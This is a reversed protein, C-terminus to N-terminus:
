LAHARVVFGAGVLVLAMVLFATALARDAHKSIARSAAWDLGIVVSILLITMVPYAPDSM